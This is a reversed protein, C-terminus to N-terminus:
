RRRLKAARFRGTQRSGTSRERAAKVPTPLKVSATTPAWAQDRHQQVITTVWASQERVFAELSLDGAAIRDLGQEWLATTAPDAIAPPIVHLLAFATDSARLTRGHKVLYGRAILGSIINARTAETGIGTTEKLKKKLQPDSVWRALRRWQWKVQACQLSVARLAKPKTDLVRQRHRLRKILSM